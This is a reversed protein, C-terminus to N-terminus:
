INNFLNVQNNDIKNQNEQFILTMDNVLYDMVDYDFNVKMKEREILIPNSLKLQGIREIYKKYYFGEIKKGCNDMSNVIVIDSVENISQHIEKTKTSSTSQHINEKINEQNIVSELNSYDQVLKNEINNVKDINNETEIINEISRIDDKKNTKGKGFFKNFLKEM